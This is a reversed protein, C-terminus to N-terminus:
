HGTKLYLWARAIAAGLGGSLALKLLTIRLPAPVKEVLKATAVLAGDEDKKGGLPYAAPDLTRFGRPDTQDRTKEIDERAEEVHGTLVAFREVIAVHRDAAQDSLGDVGSELRALRESSLRLEARLEHILESLDTLTNNVRVVASIVRETLEGNTNQGNGQGM